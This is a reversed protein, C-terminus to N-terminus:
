DDNSITVVGQPDSITAGVPNTLNILITENPEITTDGNIVIVTTITTQGAAFTKTLTKAVYDSGASATGNATTYKFSVATAQAASLKFTVSVTKTGSNGEAISVDNVSISPGAVVDDNTITLTGQPTAITAGNANTVKLLVTENPENTADGNVVVSSQISLQGANFTKTITKAVYDSGATATGNATSFTFSVPTASAQSLTFTVPVAKTGSNGEAASTNTVSIAPLSGVPMGQVCNSTANSWETQLSYFHGNWQENALGGDLSMTGYNYACKDGNEAGSADWWADLYPDTVAEMQEHSTTSLVIDSAANNPFSSLSTCENLYANAGYPMTAYIVNGGNLPYFSHYACYVFNSGNSGATRFCDTADACQSEGSSTFVFYMTSRDTPLANANIVKTIEAQVQTDDICNAGAGAAVCSAGAAPYPSTDVIAQLMNASNVIFHQSGSIVEYYQTNIQYLGNGGVDSFYRQILANYQPDVSAAAGNQLTTPEWLIPVAHNASSMVQGGHYLLNAAATGVSNQASLGAAVQKRLGSRPLTHVRKTPNLIQRIQKASLTRPGPIRPGTTAKAPGSASFAGASLAVVAVGSAFRAATSSPRKM